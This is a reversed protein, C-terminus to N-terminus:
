RSLRATLWRDLDAIEEMSISHEMPYEHWDVAHGLAALADRSARGRDVGIIPDFRGHAMFIPVAANAPATEAATTAALPLYGSLGVLGALPEAHRLGVLLTMACGQSFGALVVRRSDIGREREHAILAEIRRLSARLGAEDEAYPKGDTPLGLIDYWARMRYGGNLTVPREPAHPFIFRVDGCGALRLAQAVPVLDHGDAGLGHLVIVSAAPAPGTAFEVVELSPTAM